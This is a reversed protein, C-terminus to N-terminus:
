DDEDAKEIKSLLDAAAAERAAELGQMLSHTIPINVQMPLVTKGDTNIIGIADWEYEEHTECWSYLAVVPYAGKAENDKDAIVGLVDPRDKYITVTISLADDDENSVVGGVGYLLGSNEPM